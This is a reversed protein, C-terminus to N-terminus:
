SRSGPLVRIHRGPSHLHRTHPGRARGPAQAGPPGQRPRAPLPADLYDQLQSLNTTYDTEGNERWRNLQQFIAFAFSYVNEPHIEDGGIVAGARLDPPIAIRRAQFARGLWVTEIMIVGMLGFIVLM